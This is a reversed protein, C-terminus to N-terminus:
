NSPAAPAAPAPKKTGTPKGFHVTKAVMKGASNTSYSGTVDEGVVGDSLTAPKGDKTIKTDSTVEFTRKPQTKYEVTITKAAADVAGLKGRFTPVHAKAPAAPKNTSDDAMSRLPAGVM